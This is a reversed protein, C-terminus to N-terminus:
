ASGWCGIESKPNRIESKGDGIQMRRGAGGNPTASNRLAEDRPGRPTTLHHGTAWVEGPGSFGATSAVRFAELVTSSDCDAEFAM